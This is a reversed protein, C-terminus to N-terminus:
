SGPEGEGAARGASIGAATRKSEEQRAGLSRGNAGERRVKGSAQPPKREELVTAFGKQEKLQEFDDGEDGERAQEGGAGLSRGNAGERRVKGSTQPPKRKELVTAFGIQEKLQEFDDGVM